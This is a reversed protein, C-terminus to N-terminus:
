IQGLGGDVQVDVGNVFGAADSALFAVINAIDALTGLRGVPVLTTMTEKAAADMVAAADPYRRSGPSGVNVRIRRDKLEVAWSRAPARYGRM